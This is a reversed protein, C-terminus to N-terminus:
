KNVINTPEGKLYAEINSIVTSYCRTRSEFSGWAMHPTLLVNDFDKIKYFPHNTDFPEKTFVDCGMAGITGNLIANAVAEENWVGGRAVNVLIVDKKMMSLERVDILNRTNENLPCHISIIDARSILEDVSVCECEPVPTRKNVIVKCGFADAIKGVTNGINGYGIIGWTKGCLEHYIPVLSNPVGDATYKGSAVCERYEKLHTALSCVMSVTVQAVCQSSYAPTNSVLIGKKTCYDLDINDYGTATECILKLSKANKLVAENMKIKNVIIVDADKVREAAENQTSNEYKIVKGFREAPTLDLDYGLTAYDLIVITM